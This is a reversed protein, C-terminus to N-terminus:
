QYHGAEVGSKVVGEIAWILNQANIVISRVQRFRMRDFGDGFDCECLSALATVCIPNEALVEALLDPDDGGMLRETLSDIREQEAQENDAMKAEDKDIQTYFENTERNVRCDPM